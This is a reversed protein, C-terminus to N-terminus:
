QGPQALQQRIWGMYRAAQGVVQDSTRGRMLEIVVLEGSDLDQALLDLRGVPTSLQHGSRGDGGDWISLRRGWDILDWNTVIFEELYAELAFEMTASSADGLLDDSEVGEGSGVEVDILDEDDRHAESFRLLQNRGAQFFVPPRRALNPYHHRSPNNVSLGIIHARVTAVQVKPYRQAFWAILDGSSMPEQLEGGADRILDAVPRDYLM